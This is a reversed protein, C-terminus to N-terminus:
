TQPTQGKGVSVGAIAKGANSPEARFLPRSRQPVLGEMGLDSLGCFRNLRRNDVGMLNLPHLLLLLLLLLLWRWSRLHITSLLPSSFHLVIADYSTYPLDRGDAPNPIM